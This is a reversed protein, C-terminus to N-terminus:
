PGEVLAPLVDHDWPRAVSLAVWQDSARLIRCAGSASVRGSPWMGLLRSRLTLEEPWEIAVVHGHAASRREIQAAVADLVRAQGGTFRPLHPSTPANARRAM